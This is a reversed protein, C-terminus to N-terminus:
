FLWWNSNVDVCITSKLDSSWKLLHHITPKVALISKIGLILLSELLHQNEDSVSVSWKSGSVQRENM